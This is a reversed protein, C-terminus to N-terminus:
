RIVMLWLLIQIIICTFESVQRDPLSPCTIGAWNVGVYSDYM